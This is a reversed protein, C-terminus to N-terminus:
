VRALEEVTRVSKKGWWRKFLRVGKTMQRDLAEAAAFRVESDADDVAEYLAVLVEQSDATPLDLRGCVDTTRARVGPDSNRLAAILISAIHPVQQLTDGLHGLVEAARARIGGDTDHLLIDVLAPVVQLRQVETPGRQKLHIVARARTVPDPDYLATMLDIDSEPPSSLLTFSQSREDGSPEVEFRQPHRALFASLAEPSRTVSAAFQSLTRKASTRVFGEPDHEVTQMLATLMGPHSLTAAGIRRLAETTRLRVFVDPDSLSFLLAELIDMEFVLSEGINAFAEIIGARVDPNPDHLQLQLWRLLPLQKIRGNLQALVAFADAVHSVV